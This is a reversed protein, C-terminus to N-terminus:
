PFIAGRDPALWLAGEDGSEHSIGEEHKVRDVGRGRGAVALGKFGAPGLAIGGIGLDAELQKEM